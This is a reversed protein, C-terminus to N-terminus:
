LHHNQYMEFLEIRSKEGNGDDDLRKKFFFLSVKWFHTVAVFIQEMGGLFGRSGHKLFPQFYRIKISSSIGSRPNKKVSPTSLYRMKKGFNGRKGFVYGGWFFFVIM